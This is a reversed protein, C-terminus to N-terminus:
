EEWALAFNIVANGANSNTFTVLYNTSPKLVIEKAGLTKRGTDAAPISLTYITIPASGAVASIDAVGKLVVTSTAKLSRNTDIPTIAGATVYSYDELLSSVVPGASVAIGVPQLHISKGAPTTIQLAGIKGTAVTLTTEMVFTKKM